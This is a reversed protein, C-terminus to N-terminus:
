TYAALGLLPSGPFARPPARGSVAMGGIGVGQLRHRGACRGRGAGPRRLDRARDPPRAPGARASRRRRPMLAQNASNQCWIRGAANTWLRARSGILFIMQCEPVARMYLREGARGPPNDFGPVRAHGGGSSAEFRVSNNAVSALDPVAIKVLSSCSLSACVAAHRRPKGCRAREDSRHM